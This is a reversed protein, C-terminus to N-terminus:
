SVLIFTVYTPLNKERSATVFIFNPNITAHSPIVPRPSHTSELPKIFFTPEGKIRDILISRQIRIYSFYEPIMGILLQPFCILSNLFNCFLIMCFIQIQICTQCILFYTQSPFERYIPNMHMHFSVLNHHLM